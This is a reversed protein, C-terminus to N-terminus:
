SVRIALSDDRCSPFFARAHYKRESNHWSADRTSCTTDQPLSSTSQRLTSFVSGLSARCPSPVTTAAMRIASEAADLREELQRKTQQESLRPAKQTAETKVCSVEERLLTRSSPARSDGM